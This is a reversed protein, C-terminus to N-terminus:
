RLLITETSSHQTSWVTSDADDSTVGDHGEQIYTVTGEVSSNTSDYDYNPLFVHVRYTDRSQRHQRNNGWEDKSQIIFSAKKGATAFILGTGHANTMAAHTINPSVDLKFPSSIIDSSSVGKIVESVLHGLMNGTLGSIDVELLQVDANM